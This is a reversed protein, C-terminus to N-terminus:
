KINQNLKKLDKKEVFGLIEYKKTANEIVEVCSRAHGGSGIIFIKNKM